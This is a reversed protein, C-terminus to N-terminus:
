KGPISEIEAELDDFKRTLSRRRQAQYVRVANRAIYYGLIGAPLALLFGGLMMPLIIEHFAFYLNDLSKIPWIQAWVEEISDLSEARHRPRMGLLTKGLKYMLPYVIAFTWPNGLMTGIFMALIDAAILRCIVFGCIFHTFLIPWFNIAVGIAFGKAIYEPSGPRRKLRLVIYNFARKYFRRYGGCPAIYRRARKRWHHKERSLFM